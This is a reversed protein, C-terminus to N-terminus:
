ALSRPDGGSVKDHWAGALPNRLIGSCNNPWLKLGGKWRDGIRRSKERYFCATVGARIKQVKVKEANKSRGELRKKWVPPSGEGREDRASNQGASKARLGRRFGRLFCPSNIDEDPDAQSRRNDSKGTLGGEPDGSASEERRERNGGAAGRWPRSGDPGGSPPTAFAADCRGAKPSPSGCRWIRSRACSAARHRPFAEM